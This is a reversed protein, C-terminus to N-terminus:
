MLVRVVGCVVERSKRGVQTNLVTAGLFQPDRLAGSSERNRRGPSILLLIVIFLIINTPKSKATSPINMIGVVVDAAPKPTAMVM